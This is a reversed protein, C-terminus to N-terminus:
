TNKGRRGIHGGGDEFVTDDGMRAKKQAARKRSHENSAVLGGDAFVDDENGNGNGDSIDSGSGSHDDVPVPPEHDSGDDDDDGPDKAPASKKKHKKRKFVIM